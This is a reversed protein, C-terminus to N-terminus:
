RRKERGVIGPLGDVASDYMTHKVHDLDIAAFGLGVLTKM